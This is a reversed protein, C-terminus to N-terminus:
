KLVNGEFKFDILIESLFFDEDVTNNYLELQLRKGFSGLKFDTDIIEQGGWVGTDFVDPGFVAGSGALSVTRETKETSDVWWRAQLDYSGQPAMVVRGTKFFKRLNPQNFHIHPTRVGAWYANSDDNRNTQNHNWVFGSRDGTYFDYDGAGVRILASVSASYGSNSDRNDHITWAIEPPRDIYYVLATDVTTEGSRVIFFFIARRNPDYLSHFDDIKSLDVNDRIWKDMFSARTLSAQKYDGFSEAASVSYITGDETMAVLDTPTKTLLRHHAVGGDWAAAEYTWNATNSDSDNVAYAKKRGFAFLVKGFEVLGAVGFGDQTDIDMTGSTGGSFVKGDGTSSYYLRQRQDSVGKAWLRRSQGRSHSVMQDPFDSGTWDGNATTIDSTNAASGNWTQPTNAGDCVYVEDEFVEFWFRNSTSMTSNTIETPSTPDYFLKGNKTAYVLRDTGDFKRFKYLGMIQAGSDVASSNVKATGSRKRVGGEHLDVNRSPNVFSTVPINDINPNNNHGSAHLPIRYTQGTFGM